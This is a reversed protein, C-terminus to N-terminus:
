FIFYIFETSKTIFLTSIFFVIALIITYLFNNKESYLKALQTSNKSIFVIYICMLLIIWNLELDFPIPFFKLNIGSIAIPKFSEAFGFMSKLMIFTNKFEDVGIFPTLLVLSTFTILISFVKPIKINLKMWLLNICILLGSLLGYCVRVPNTGEWLGYIFFVLM